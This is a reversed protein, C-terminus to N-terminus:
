FVIKSGPYLSVVSKSSYCVTESFKSGKPIGTLAKGTGGTVVGSSSAASAGKGVTKVCKAIQAPTAKKQTISLTTTGTKNWTVKATIKKLNKFNTVMVGKGGTAAPNTCKTMTSTNIAKTLNNVSKAAACATPTAATASEALPVAILSGAALAVAILRTSRFRM